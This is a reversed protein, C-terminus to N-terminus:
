IMRLALIGLDKAVECNRLSDDIFFLIDYHENIENLLDRKVETDERYDDVGRMYISDFGYIGEKELKNWTENICSENRATCFIISLDSERLVNYFEKIGPILNVKDSNSNKNFYEWKDEGKLGLEMIEKHLFNTGLVVGDIGLVVAKKM